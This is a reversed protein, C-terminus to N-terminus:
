KAGQSRAREWAASEVYHNDFRDQTETIEEWGGTGRHARDLLRFYEFRERGPAMAFLVDADSSRAAAFAHVVRPPVALFDGQRLTIVEDEVLVQLAELVFFLETSATHFHPPAGDFGDRFTSRNANLAGGTQEADALLAITGGPDGDLLEADGGRVLLPRKHPNTTTQSMAGEGDDETAM